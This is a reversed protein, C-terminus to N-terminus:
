LILSEVKGHFHKMKGYKQLQKMLIKLQSKLCTEKFDSEIILEKDTLQAIREITQVARKYPSSIVYDINEKELIETIREVDIIGQSSLPRKLEDVTYISHAHRVFYLNTM